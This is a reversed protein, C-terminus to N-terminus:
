ADRTLRLVKRSPILGDRIYPTTGTINSSTLERGIKTQRAKETSVILTDQCHRNYPHTTRTSSSLNRTVCVTTPPWTKYQFIVTPTRETKQNTSQYISETCVCQNCSNYVEHTKSHPMIQHPRSMYAKIPEKNFFLFAKKHRLNTGCWNFLSHKGLYFLM